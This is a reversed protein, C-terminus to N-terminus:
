PTAASPKVYSPNAPKAGVTQPPMVTTSIAHQLEFEDGSYIIAEDDLTRYGDGHALNINEIFAGPNAGSLVLSVERIVGHMVNKAREILQNAYISLANIDKHVVLQKAKQGGDTDNFFGEAWVGDDRVSLVAHGLVNDVSDHQHQWVLPVQVGDMGKFAQALIHRGDACKIGSRTAYGSFDPVM